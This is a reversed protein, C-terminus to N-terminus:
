FDRPQLFEDFTGFFEVGPLHCFINERAGIVVIRCACGRAFGMEFHRGGRSAGPIDPNSETFALFTDAAAIDELDLVACWAAFDSDLCGDEPEGFLWRSTVEHGLSRLRLAYRLLEQRRGYRGALYVKM